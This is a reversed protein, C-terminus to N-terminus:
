QPGPMGGVWEIDEIVAAAVDLSRAAAVGLGPLIMWELAWAAGSREQEHVQAHHIASLQTATYRALTVLLEARIPNQKHPMASSGGGGAIGIEQMQAMLAIDQGIKGCSGAIMSMLGACEVLGDRTTHWCPGASLGLAGAVHAVMAEPIDRRDGVPGGIQVVQVRPRLAALRARHRPLASAWGVFRTGADIPLADQMRTRGMIRTQGFRADARALASELRNLRTDLLDLTHQLTMALASDMVDQSTAGVHVAEAADGAAAKLARVLAPVPLGDNATGGRLLNMDAPWGEIVRAAREATDPDVRGTAGLARSWAAEFALMQSLQREPSWIAQAEEDAFLGGLWPHDFVSIM